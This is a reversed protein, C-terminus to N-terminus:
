LFSPGLHKLFESKVKVRLMRLSALRRLLQSCIYGAEQLPQVITCELLLIYVSSYFSLPLVVTDATQGIWCAVVLIVRVTAGLLSVITM